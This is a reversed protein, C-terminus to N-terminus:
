GAIKAQEDLGQQRLTVADANATDLTIRAAPPGLKEHVSDVAQREPGQCFLTPFMRRPDFDTKCWSAGM